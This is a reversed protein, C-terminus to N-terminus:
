IRLHTQMNMNSLLIIFCVLDFTLPVDLVINDDGSENFTGSNESQTETTPAEETPFNVYDHTEDAQIVDGWQDETIM